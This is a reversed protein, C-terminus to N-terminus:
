RVVLPLYIRRIRGPTASVPGHFTSVGRTDVDELKYYYTAGQMVDSDTYSYSAGSLADGEAPILADNIKAYTGGTWESRWLNFGANDVETGTQWSLAIHDAAPRATFSLLDIATPVQDIPGGFSCVAYLGAGQQSQVLITANGNPDTPLVQRISNGHRQFLKNVGVFIPHDSRFRLTGDVNNQVSEFELGCANLLANWQRAEEQPLDPDTGGALYINGGAKVYDVLVRTDPPVVPPPDDFNDAQSGALFIGDRSLLDTVSLPVTNSVVRWRHGAGLM